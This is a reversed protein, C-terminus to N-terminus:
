DELFYKALKKFNEQHIKIRKLSEIKELKNTISYLASKVDRFFEEEKLTIANNIWYFQIAVFGILAITITVILLYIFKKSM